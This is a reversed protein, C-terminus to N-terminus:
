ITEQRTKAGHSDAREGTALRHLWMGLKLVLAWIVFFIALAALPLLLPFTYQRGELVISIPYGSGTAWLALIAIM